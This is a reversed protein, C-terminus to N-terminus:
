AAQEGIARHYLAVLSGDVPGEYVKRGRRLVLARDALAGTADLDHSAMVVVAGRDREAGILRAAMAVGERDLGTLPEDLLLLDPAPLLARALTLRQAMGRSFDGAARDADRALGVAALLADVRADLAAVGYLRGFFRLNERASLPRYLFTRHGVYGIRGRIAPPASKIPTDGFFVEGESPRMLTSLIGMLTSKGAGNPGLLATLTGAPFTADLDVLAYEDDYVRGLGRTRVADFPAAPGGGTM